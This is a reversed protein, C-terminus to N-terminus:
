QVVIDLPVMETKYFDGAYAKGCEQHSNYAFEDQEERSVKYKDAVNGSDVAVPAFDKYWSPFDEGNYNM